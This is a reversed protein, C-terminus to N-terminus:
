EANDIKDALSKEQEASTGAEAEAEEETDEDKGKLGFYKEAMLDLETNKAKLCIYTFDERVVDVKNIEIAEEADDLGDGQVESKNKAKKETKEKELNDEETQSIKQENEERGLRPADDSQKEVGEDKDNETDSDIDDGV